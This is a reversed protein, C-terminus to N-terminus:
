LPPRQGTYLVTVFPRTVTGRFDRRAIVEIEDLIARQESESRRLVEILSGYFARLRPIDFHASWRFVESRV